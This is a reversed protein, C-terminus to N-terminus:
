AAESNELRPEALSLSPLPQSHLYDYARLGAWVVVVLVVAAEGALFIAENGFLDMAAGAAVPGILSGLCNIALYWASARALGSTPLRDGLLALGLPYFAGSCAGALFLCLAMGPWPLACALCGLAAATVVYCGVLVATRGLRDALWAVPVQFVIVGMMIGSMLWGASAESMGVALLYIPMLAVMGGELFGQSWASGFSLVNRGFALPTRGHGEEEVQGTGPFWGGIALAALLAALGGLMFATRPAAAYMEVGLLTGLAIGLAVAFAYYGFDRARKEPAANRNVLTELPVLSLAGGVGNLLRLLFWGPLSDVFPFWAVTVASLLMGAVMTRRGSRRMLKPVLVAAMAIGLYYVATNLGIVTAGHGADQLVLSALPAGLGFNFAWLLGAVCIVLLTRL